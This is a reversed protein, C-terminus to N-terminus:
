SVGARPSKRRCLRASTRYIGASMARPSEDIRGAEPAQPGGRSTSDGRTRHESALDFGVPLFRNRDCSGLSNGAVYLVRRLRIPIKHFAQVASQTSIGCKVTMIGAWMATKRLAECLRAPARRDRDAAATVPAEFHSVGTVRSGARYM